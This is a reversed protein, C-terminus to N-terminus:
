IEIRPGDPAREPALPHRPWGPVPPMKGDYAAEQFTVNNKALTPNIRQRTNFPDICHAVRHEIIRTREALPMRLLRQVKVDDNHNYTEMKRIIADTDFFYSLHWGHLGEATQCTRRDRAPWYHEAGRMPLKKTLITQSFASSDTRVLM